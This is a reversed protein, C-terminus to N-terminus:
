SGSVLVWQSSWKLFNKVYDVSVPYGSLVPYFMAFLIVAALAYGAMIWVGRKKDALLKNASYGLMMVVFPVCPFYHYIFTVRTVPIWPLLQALYGITLFLASREKKVFAIYAVYFFAPIGAWWVLPNGFSSIGEKITDSVKGSYFWIPRYMIPWKYWESSFSHTATVGKHYRLMGSQNDIVGKLGTGNCSMYPIYSAVYIGLPVIVFMLVCFLITSKAYKPFADIIYSHSIGDTEGDPTSKAYCYEEYRKYLTMFFLIALGAGAYLGTWKSAAGLGFSIGCLGLPILTKKFDTDYFSMRYYMLMFAYMLIIFFTIYVDITAIRTQAFHMFDFTFLVACFASVSTKGFMKKAFLYIAPIMLIGFLTGAIRWGFPTMGFARVGLSILVKGLPPHTWEYVNYGHIFEYATRAHYIEDFYTSNKHTKRAPVLEQEDFCASGSAEILAGNKDLFGAEFIEAKSSSSYTVYEASAVDVTNENWCFVSGSELTTEGTVNGDADTFTVTLTNDKNLHYPGLYLWMKGIGNPANLRATVSNADLIIKTQPAKMDGLNFLAIGSYVAVLVVLIAADIRTMRYNELSRHIKFVHPKKNELTKPQEKIPEVLGDNALCLKATAFIVIAYAAVAVWGLATAASHQGSSFYTKANYFFLAHAANLFQTVSVALYAAFGSTKPCMLYGAFLLLMAPYGYRDHMKTSLMFTSFCIFGAIWFYRSKSKCRFFMFTAAVVIAVILITGMLSTITTLGKWNLGFAAWMNYANVSCYQYSSLTDVYQKFVKDLGFPLALVVVELIALLGFGIYKLLKKPNFEPYIAEEAIAYLLIPMYFLTQPKVLVSVGFVFFSPILKKETVLLICIFVLLTFVSDVQGWLASNVFVAPNFLWFVFVMLAASQSLKKEALRYLLVATVIDCMIAPTKLVVYFSQWQMPVLKKVAGLVWLVYMYGPPYDSFTDASYFKAPGETFMREAWSSFCAMDNPFGDYYGTGIYRAVVGALLLLIFVLTNQPTKKTLKGTDPVIYSAYLLLSCALYVAGVAIIQTMVCDGM